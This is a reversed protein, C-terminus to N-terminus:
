RHLILQYVILNCLAYKNKSHIKAISQSSSNLSNAGYNICKLMDIDMWWQIVDFLWLCRYKLEVFDFESNKLIKMNSEKQYQANRMSKNRIMEFKKIWKSMEANRGNWSYNWQVMLFLFRFFKLEFLKWEFWFM